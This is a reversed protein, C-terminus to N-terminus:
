SAGVYGKRARIDFSGPRALKVKVDHWGERTVDKPSYRLVYSTRFDELARKFSDPIKESTMIPGLRGGTLNCVDGLLATAEVPTTTMPHQPIFAHVVSESRRAMEVVDRPELSSGADMADTFLAIMHGRDPLRRRTLALGLADYLVTLGGAVAADVPLEASGPRFGFQEHTDGSFTILRFRDDDRLQDAVAKVQSRMEDMMLEMSGSTDLLLTIDIPLSENSVSEVTQAVGNDTLVFDKATLGTVPLNGQRVAVDITVVDVGARFRQTQAGLLLIAWACGVCWACRVCVIWSV